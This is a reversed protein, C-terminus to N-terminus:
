ATPQTAGGPCTARISFMQPLVGDQGRLRWLGDPGQEEVGWIGYTAYPFEHLFDIRLGAQCLATVTEGLTHLWEYSIYETDLDAAYSYATSEVWAETRFYRDVLRPALTERDFGVVVKFPHFEVIYFTGGPKLYRAILEAWASLDPLWFLVGYSTFVVDFQREGLVQPLDYLNSCVFEAPLKLEAALDHALRIAEPSFDVGTVTAGRRAWSLTDLGFHCQLHLLSKGSVDGLEDLEVPMLTNEGAKFRAVDYFRSPQAHHARAWADWMARNADLHAEEM